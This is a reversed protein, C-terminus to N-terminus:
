PEAGGCIDASDRVSSIQNVDDCVSEATSNKSSDWHCNEITQVGPHQKNESLKVNKMGASVKGVAVNVTLWM